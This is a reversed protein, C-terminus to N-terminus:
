VQCKLVRNLNSYDKIIEINKYGNSKFIEKIQLYLNSNLEIFIAGSKNLFQKAQLAILRYFFLGNEKAILAKRPEYNLEPELYKFEDASIYPPNSVIVDFVKGNLNSFLDSKIFNINAKNLSANKTAIKLAAISIDVACIYDLQWLKSLSIAIAGSGCCLDLLSKKENEKIFDLVKEVMIETEPRPILVNKNVKFDLGMFGCSGIIYATPERKLRRNIYKKFTSMQASSLSKDRILPINSRKIKLINSLFIEIDSKPTKINATKLLNEAELILDYIRYSSLIL